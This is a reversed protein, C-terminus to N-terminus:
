KALQDRLQRAEARQSEPLQEVSVMQMVEAARSTDGKKALAAAYHYQVEHNDPLGKAAETLLEVARDLQEGEQFLIWGYTDAIAAAQPAAEYAQSALEIARRDGQKQYLVALNNLTVANGPASQLSREYLAVARETGGRREYDAALLAVANSDGPHDAVWEELIREPAPAGSRLAAGYEAVVLGSDKGGAGAKRYFDLAERYRKQQMALDGQLRYTVPSEPAIKSLREIYGAAKATAGSQLSSLAALSLAPQFDPADQLLDDLVRLGAELDRNVLHARALNLRYVRAKPALRVAEEFSAIGGAVDAASMQITGRANFVADNDPAIKAAADVAERAKSFDQAALYFQALALRAEVSDPLETIARQLWKEATASDKRGAALSALGLMAPLSKPDAELAREFLRQAEDLKGEALNIRALNLLTSVDDPKLKLAEELQARGADPEGSAAYVTAVLNRVAPDDGSREVLADAEAKARDKDGKRLLALMLLYERQYGSAGTSPMSELLQIALDYEGAQVFGAAVELQTAPLSDPGLKTAAQAYYSLAQKSDGAQLSLRGAMALTAADATAPDISSKLSALTAQPSQVRSRAELLLRQAQTNGPQNAVVAAFHMEAQGLNGQQMNVMGLLIKAQYNEPQRSVVEELLTRAKDFDGGAFEVQATLQKVYLNDPAAKNLQGVTARAEEVKGQRMQSEALAGLAALRELSGPNKDAKEVAMGFAREAAAFDGADSELGGVVMWYRSREKVQQPAGDLIPRVADRGDVVFTARALGLLADLSDPEAAVAVEFEQKAETARGLGMLAHGQIVHLSAQDAASAAAPQCETLVSEFEGKALRVKCDPILIAERAIGLDKAKQLEIEGAQYDGSDILATALLARAKANQPESEVLNKLDIVAARTDGKALSSEARTYLAEGKPSCAALALALLVSPLPHRIASLPYSLLSRAM